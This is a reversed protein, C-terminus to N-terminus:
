VKVTAKQGLLGQPRAVLVLILVVFAVANQTQSSIYGAAMLQIVGISVGGLMAGASSGVGGIVMAAFGNLLYSFGFAASVGTMPAIAFGALAGLCGSIIFSLTVVSEVNVGRVRALAPDDSVSRLVLGTTTRRVLYELLVFVILAVGALMASQAAVPIGFISVTDEADLFLSPVPYTETGWVLTAVGQLVIYAGLTSVVWGAGAGIRLVPRVAVREIVVALAAVLVLGALMALPVSYGREVLAYLVFAAVMMFGGHAFNLVKVTWYTVNMGQAVLSYGLGTCVGTLLLTFFFQM